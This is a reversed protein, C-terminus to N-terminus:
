NVNSIFENIANIYNCGPQNASRMKVATTNLVKQIAYKCRPDTTVTSYTPHASLFMECQHMDHLKQKLAHLIPAHKRMNTCELFEQLYDSIINKAKPVEAERKQLTEDKLKSLEDVNVM